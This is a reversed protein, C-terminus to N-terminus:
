ILLACSLALRTALDNPPPGDYLPLRAGPGAHSLAPIPLPALFLAPVAVPLHGHGTTKATTGGDGAFLPHDCAPCSQRPSDPTSRGDSPNHDSHRACCSGEAAARLPEVPIVCGARTCTTGVVLVAVAALLAIIQRGVRSM